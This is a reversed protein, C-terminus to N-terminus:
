MCDISGLMGPFGCEETKALLRQTDPVTLRRLLEAGYCQVISMCYYEICELAISKVLKWHEDIMGATM